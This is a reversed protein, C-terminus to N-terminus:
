LLVTVLAAEGYPYCTLEHRPPWSDPFVDESLFPTRVYQGAAPKRGLIYPLLDQASAAPVDDIFGAYFHLAM